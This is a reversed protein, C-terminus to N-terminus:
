ASLSSVCRPLRRCHRSRSLSSTCRAMVGGFFVKLPDPKIPKVPFNAPDLVRFQEGKQRKEMQETIKASEKNTLLTQYQKNTNEYDRLLVGLEQERIPMVEMRDELSKIQAQIEGVRHKRVRIEAEVAQVSDGTAVCGPLDPVYASYNSGAKELGRLTDGRPERRDV